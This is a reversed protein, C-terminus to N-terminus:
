FLNRAVRHPKGQPSSSSDYDAVLTWQGHPVIRNFYAVTAICAPDISPLGFAPGWVHLELVMGGIACSATSTNLSCLRATSSAHWRDLIFLVWWIRRALREESDRDGEMVSNNTARIVNIELQGAVGAARGLWEARSPGAQGRITAPGHNDSELAMLLLTQLYVLNTANTHTSPNDFPYNALLEATRKLAQAYGPNPALTTTPFTRMLCDLAALFAERLSPPCDALRQKAQFQFRAPRLSAPAAM